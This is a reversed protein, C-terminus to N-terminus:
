ADTHRDSRNVVRHIETLLTLAEANVISGDDVSAKLIDLCTDHYAGVSSLVKERFARQQATSMSGYLNKEAHLMISGVLRKRQEILLNRVFDSAM